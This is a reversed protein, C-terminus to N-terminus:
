TRDQPGRRASRARVTPAAAAPEIALRSGPELGWRAFAGRQAELVHRVGRRPPVLGFPRLVGTRRVTLEADLLAVDLRYVMGIGHVGNCPTLLLAGATGRTGLLGRLRSVYTGAVALDCTDRGDVILRPM